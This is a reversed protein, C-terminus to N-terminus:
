KLPVHAFMPDWETGSATGERAIILEVPWKAGGAGGEWQTARLHFYVVLARGLQMGLGGQADEVDKKEAEAAICGETAAERRRGAELLGWRGCSSTM